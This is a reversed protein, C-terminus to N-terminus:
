MNTSKHQQRIIESKETRSKIDCESASADINVSRCRESYHWREYKIIRMRIRSHLELSYMTDTQVYYEFHTCM